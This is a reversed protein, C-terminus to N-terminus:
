GSYLGATGSTCTFRMDVKRDATQETQRSLDCLSKTACGRLVIRMSVAGTISTTQLLCMNENGTCQMTDDTYCWGSYTSVCTRCVLGNFRTSVAPLTPLDPTCNDTNCCSAGIRNMANNIVSISGQLNCQNKPVCGRVYNKSVVSGGATTVTYSAGCVNDSPCSISPGDCSTMGLTVCRICSLAQCIIKSPTCNNIECCTSGIRRMVDNIVSTSGQLNCKNKAFCGRVYIKTFVSSGLSTETYSTGCVNDPPCSVSPGICYTSELSVCQICSLAHSPFWVPCQSLVSSCSAHHALDLYAIPHHNTLAPIYSSSGAVTVFPTIWTALNYDM